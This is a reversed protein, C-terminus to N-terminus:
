VRAGQSPPRPQPKQKSKPDTCCMRFRNREYYCMGLLIGIGVMIGIIEGVGVEGEGWDKFSPPPSLPSPFLPPPAVPPASPPLPASQSM